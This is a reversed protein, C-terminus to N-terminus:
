DGFMALDAQSIKIIENKKAKDKKGVDVRRLGVIQEGEHEIVELDDDLDSRGSFRCRCPVEPSGTKSDAAESARVNSM